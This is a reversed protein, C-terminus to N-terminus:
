LAPEGREDAVLAAEGGIEVRTLVRDVQDELPRLAGTVAVADRDCEVRRRALHELVTGVAELASLLRARFHGLEPRLEDATIRDDRDFVTSRLVVPLRPARQRLPETVTHLEDPVVEEDR